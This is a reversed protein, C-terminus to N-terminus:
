RISTIAGSMARSQHSWAAVTDPDTARYLCSPHFATSSSLLRTQATMSDGWPPCFGEARGPADRGSKFCPVTLSPGAVVAAVQESLTMSWSALAGLSPDSPSWRIRRGRHVVVVVVGM